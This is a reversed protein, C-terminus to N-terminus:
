LTRVWQAASAGLSDRLEYGQNILKHPGVLYIAMTVAGAMFWMMRNARMEEGAM